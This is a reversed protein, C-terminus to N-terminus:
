KHKAERKPKRLHHFGSSHTKELSLFAAGFPPNGFLFVFTSRLVFARWVTRLVFACVISRSVFDCFFTRLWKPATSKSNTTPWFRSFIDLYLFCIDNLNLSTVKASSFSGQPFGAVRPSKNYWWIDHFICLIRYMYMCICWIHMRICWIYMCRCSYVVFIMVYLWIDDFIM